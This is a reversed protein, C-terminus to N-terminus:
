FHYYPKIMLYVIVGSITVFLWLPFTWRVLKKHKEVQMQLGRHFSLLILPLVGAALVIHPVLIALYVRRSTGAIAREAENLVGDGNADGYLTDNRMLYHFLIYSVLFLSSLCFTLINIRKHMTINGQKIYYLSVMLLVSCTGNLIANLLPLYPTFAPPTAPGPILHRNLVIVVAIVFITIGAVFRFIFKDTM